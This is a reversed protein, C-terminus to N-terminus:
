VARQERSVTKKGRGDIKQGRGETGAISQGRIPTRPWQPPAPPASKHPAALLHVNEEGLFEEVRRRMEPNIEVRLRECNCLVRTGDALQFRLELPCTGPYGRLIEYLKEVGATGHTKELLRLSIGRTFRKPLDELPILENVIMNAEDGGRKDIVGLVAVIADAKVMEGYQQFQEPWVICRMMAETDELDFMAYRTPNGPRPNKTHALKISSILGGLMVESRHPLKAAQSTTHSCFSALTERHEALPHSSRYFGLVEKEKALTDSPEWDPVDPLGVAKPQQPDSQEEDGGFLSKQGSRRDAARAVGSQLARDIAQFLQSRRANFCDMAGAKVLSEVATRNVAGPDLRECFDFIDRLPGQAQRAAVIAEAAGMGCGKIAGLGFFIKGDAVTFDAGCLNVDPSVVEIHMRQCDELHEVLSDKKTFNRSSMDSSLLAAMFEVPYHAKLYATMYAILAYATSHSKNFGYGAFKEILGFLEEGEKKELGQAHAGEIFEERFKAIMSLKKKSIAKICSYANALPINGLRNIIRMVQEQYVMVGHTEELVDKM